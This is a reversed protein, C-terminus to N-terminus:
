KKPAIIPLGSRDLVEIFRAADERMYVNNFLVYIRKKGEGFVKEIIERLKELDDDSYRYRYNVEGGGIGHLRFYALEHASVPECRFPDVVHIIDHKDCLKKVASLNDRWTGRPEWGILVGDRKITSFFKEANALNEGSYGFTAPTQIVCVEARMAKCIELTKEWAELNEETPRLFGYRDYKSKPIKLGSRRWTPSTPPHTIAQWAKMCFRFNEPATEAWRAVTKAQPLKYFTEQVEVISFREYYASKGGRVCWGCCGVRIEMARYPFREAELFLKM